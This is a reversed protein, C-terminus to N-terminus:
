IEFELWGCCLVVLLVNAEFKRKNKLNHQVFTSSIADINGLQKYYAM